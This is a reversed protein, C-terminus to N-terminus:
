PKILVKGTTIQDDIMVLGKEKHILVRIYKDPQGYWANHLEYVKSFQKQHFTATKHFKIYALYASKRFRMQLNLSDHIDKFTFQALFYPDERSEDLRAFGYWNGKGFTAKVVEISRSGAPCLKFPNSPYPLYIDGFNFQTFVGASDVKLTYISDTEQDQLQIIDGVQNPMYIPDEPFLSVGKKDDKTCCAVTSFALLLYVWLVTKM